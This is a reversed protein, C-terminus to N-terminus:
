SPVWCQPCVLGGVTAGVDTGVVAVGVAAGVSIGVLIGVVAAGVILTSSTNAERGVGIGVGL